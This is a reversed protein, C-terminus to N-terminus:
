KTKRQEGKNEKIQTLVLNIGLSRSELSLNTLFRTSGGLEDLEDLSVEKSVSDLSCGKLGLIMSFMPLGGWSSGGWLPGGCSLGSKALLDM